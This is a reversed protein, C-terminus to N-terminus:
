KMFTIYNYMIYICVHKSIYMCVNLYENSVSMFVFMHICYIYTYALM